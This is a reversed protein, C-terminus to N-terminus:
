PDAAQALKKNEFHVEIAQRLAMIDINAICKKTTYKKMKLARDYGNLEPHKEKTMNYLGAKIVKAEEDSYGLDRIMQLVETHIESVSQKKKAGGEMTPYEYGGGNYVNQIKSSIREIIDDTDTGGGVMNNGSLHKRLFNTVINGKDESSSLADLSSLSDSSTARTLDNFLAKMKKKDGCKVTPSDVKISVIENKLNSINPNAGYLELLNAIINNNRKSAVHLATNGDLDQMNIYNKMERPKMKNRISNLVRMLCEEDNKNCLYHLVTQGNDATIKIADDLNDNLIFSDFINM